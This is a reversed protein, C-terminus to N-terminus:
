TLRVAARPARFIRGGTGDLPALPLSGAGGVVWHSLGHRIRRTNAPTSTSVAPAAAAASGAMGSTTASARTARSHFEGTPSASRATSSSPSLCASAATSAAPTLGRFRVRTRTTTGAARPGADATPWNALGYSRALSIALM